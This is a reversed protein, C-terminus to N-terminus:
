NLKPNLNRVVPASTEMAKVEEDTPPRPVTQMIRTLMERGVCCRCTEDPLIRCSCTPCKVRFADLRANLERHEAVLATMRAQIEAPTTLTPRTPVSMRWRTDTLERTWMVGDADTIEVLDAKLKTAKRKVTPLNTASATWHSVVGGNEVRVHFESTKGM